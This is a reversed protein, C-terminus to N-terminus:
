SLANEPPSKPGHQGAAPTSVSELGDTLPSHRLKQFGVGPQHYESGLTRNDSSLLGVAHGPRRRTRYITAEVQLSGLTAM